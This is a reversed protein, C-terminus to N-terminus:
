LARASLFIFLVFVQDLWYFFRKDSSLLLPGAKYAKTEQWMAKKEKKKETEFDKGGIGSM